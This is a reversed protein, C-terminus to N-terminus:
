EINIISILNLKKALNKSLLGNEMRLVNIIMIPLFCSPTLIDSIKILSPIKTLPLYIEEESIILKNLGLSQITLCTSIVSIIINSSEKVALITTTHGCVNKYTLKTSM